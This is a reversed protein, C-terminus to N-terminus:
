PGTAHAGPQASVLKIVALCSGAQPQCESAYPEYPSAISKSVALAEEESKGQEIAELFGSEAALVPCCCTKEAVLM